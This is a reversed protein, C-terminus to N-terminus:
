PKKIAVIELRLYYDKDKLAIYDTYANPAGVWTRSRGPVHLKLSEQFEATKLTCKKKAYIHMKQREKRQDPLGRLSSVIKKTFQM